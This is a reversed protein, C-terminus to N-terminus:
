RLLPANCRGAARLTCLRFLIAVGSQPKRNRATETVALCCCESRHITEYGGQLTENRYENIWCSCLGVANYGLHGPSDVRLRFHPTRCNQLYLTLCVCAAGLFGGVPQEYHQM